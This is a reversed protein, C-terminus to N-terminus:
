ETVPFSGMVIVKDDIGSVAFRGSVRVTVLSAHHKSVLFRFTWSMSAFPAVLIISSSSM